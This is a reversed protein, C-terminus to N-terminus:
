GTTRVHKQLLAFATREQPGGTKEVLVALRAYEAAIHDASLLATRTALIAAEVVAHKARNFGFFDRLRVAHVVKADFAVRGDREDEKAARFEYVRCAGALIWGRVKAAPKMVPPPNLVGVAARALLLVDDTVHLVGEPHALLNACTRATRFPRLTFRVLPAAPDDPVLPGMPAVNVRGDAATTTVVAELIM